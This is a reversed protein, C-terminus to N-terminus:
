FPDYKLIEDVYELDLISGEGRNKCSLLCCWPFTSAMLKWNFPWEWNPNWGGVCIDFRVYNNQIVVVEWYKM